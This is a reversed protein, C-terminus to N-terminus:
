AFTSHFTQLRHHYDSRDTQNRDDTPFNPLSLSYCVTEEDPSLLSKAM